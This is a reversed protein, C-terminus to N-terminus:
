CGSRWYRCSTLVLGGQPHKVGLVRHDLCLFIAYFHHHDQMLAGQTLM